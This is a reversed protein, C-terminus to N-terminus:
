QRERAQRDLLQRRDEREETEVDELRSRSVETSFNGLQARVRDLAKQTHERYHVWLPLEVRVGEEELMRQLTRFEDVSGEFWITRTVDM